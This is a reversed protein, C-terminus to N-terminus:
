FWDALILLIWITKYANTISFIKIIVRLKILYDINIHFIQELLKLPNAAYDQPLYTIPLLLALWSFPIYLVTGHNINSLYIFILIYNNTQYKETQLFYFRVFHYSDVGNSM